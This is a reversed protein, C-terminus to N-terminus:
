FHTFSIQTVQKRIDNLFIGDRGEIAKIVGAWGRHILRTSVRGAFLNDIELDEIFTPWQEQKVLEVVLSALGEKLYAKEDLSHVAKVM